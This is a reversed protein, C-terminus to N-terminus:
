RRPWDAFDGGATGEGEGDAAGAGVAGVPKEIADVVVFQGGATDAGEGGDVVNLLEFNQGIVVGRLVAGAGSGRHQHGGFAAGVVKVPRQELEQAVGRRSALLKKAVEASFNLRFWNPPEM